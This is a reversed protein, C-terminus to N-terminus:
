ILNNINLFKHIGHNNNSDTIYKSVNKLENTANGMAVGNAFNKVMEIDNHSDGFCYTDMNNIKYKEQVLKLANYKNINKRTLVYYVKSTLHYCSDSSIEKNIKTTLEMLKSSEVKISCQIIDKSELFIKSTTENDDYIPYKSSGGIFFFYDNVEKKPCEGFYSKWYNIGNNFALERKYELAYNLIIRKDYDSIPNALIKTKDEKISYICGGDAGVVEHILGLERIIDITQIPIRGTALCVIHGKNILSNIAIKTSHLIKKEDNLLTGDIDFAFLKKSTNM